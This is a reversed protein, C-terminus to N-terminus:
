RVRSNISSRFGTLYQLCPRLHRPAPAPGRSHRPPSVSRLRPFFFSASELILKVAPKLREMARKNASLLRFTELPSRLAIWLAKRGDLAGQANPAPNFDPMQTDLSDSVVRLVFIVLGCGEGGKPSKPPSPSRRLRDPSPHIGTVIV